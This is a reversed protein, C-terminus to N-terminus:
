VNHPSQGTWCTCEPFQCHWMVLQLLLNVTPLIFFGDSCSMAERPASWYLLVLPLQVVITGSCLNCVCRLWGTCLLVQERRFAWVDDWKVSSCTRSAGVLLVGEVTSCLTYPWRVWLIIVDDHTCLLALVLVTGVTLYAAPVFGFLVTVFIPRPGFITRASWKHSGYNTGRAIVLGPHYEGEVQSCFTCLNSLSPPTLSPCLHSQLFQLDTQLATSVKLWRTSLVICPAVKPTVSPVEKIAFPTRVGLPLKQCFSVNLALPLM